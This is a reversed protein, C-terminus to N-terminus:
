SKERAKNIATDIRDALELGEIYNRAEGLLRQLEEARQEAKEARQKWMLWTIADTKEKLAEELRQALSLAFEKECMAKWEEVPSPAAPEDAECPMAGCWRECPKGEMQCDFPYEESM